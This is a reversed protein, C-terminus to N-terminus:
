QMTEQSPAGLAARLIRLKARGAEVDIEVCAALAEVTRRDEDDLAGELQAQLSPLAAELLVLNAALAAIRVPLARM